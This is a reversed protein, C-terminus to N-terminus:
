EIEGLLAEIALDRSVPKLGVANLNKVADDFLKPSIVDPSQKHLTLISLLVTEGLIKDEAAQNYRDWLAEPPTPYMDYSASLFEKEYVIDANDLTSGSKDLNEIVNFHFFHKTEHPKNIKHMITRLEHGQPPQVMLILAYIIRQYQRGDGEAADFGRLLPMLKEVFAPPPATKSRHLARLILQAGELDLATQPLHELYSLFPIFAIDALPGYAKATSLASSIVASSDTDNDPQRLTYYSEALSTGGNNGTAFYFKTLSDYGSLSAEVSRLHLLLTEDDTLSGVSLLAPIHDAPVKLIEGQTLSTASLREDAILAVREFISLADFSDRTYPFIFDENFSAARIVDHTSNELAKNSEESPTDSLAYDCYATLVPWFDDDPVDMAFTKSELCALSKEGSGLMALIGLRAIEPYYNEPEILSFLSLADQYFGGEVLKQLRLVLIDNEASYTGASELEEANSEGLLVSRILRTVTYSDARVPMDYILSAVDKRDSGRWAGDGLAGEITGQYLGIGEISPYSEPSEEALAPGCLFVLAIGLFAFKIHNRM